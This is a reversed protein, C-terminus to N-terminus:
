ESDDGGPRLTLSTEGQWEASLRWQEGHKLVAYFRGDPVSVFHAVWVPNGHEDPLAKNWWTAEDLEAITSSTGHGGGVKFQRGGGGPARGPAGLPGSLSGRSSKLLLANCHSTCHLHRHIRGTM